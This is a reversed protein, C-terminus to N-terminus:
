YHLIYLTLIRVPDLIDKKETKYRTSMADVVANSGLFLTNWNHSSFPYFYLKSIMVSFSLFECIVVSVNGRYKRSIKFCKNITLKTNLTQLLNLDEFM